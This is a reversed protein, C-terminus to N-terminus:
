FKSSGVLRAQTLRSRSIGNLLATIPRILRARPIRTTLRTLRPRPIRTMRPTTLRTLRSRSIGSLRATTLRTRALTMTMIVQFYRTPRPKRQRRKLHILIGSSKNRPIGRCLEIGKLSYRSVDSALAASTVPSDWYAFRDFYYLRVFELQQGAGM